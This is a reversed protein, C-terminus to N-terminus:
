YTHEWVDGHHIKILKSSPFITLVKQLVPLKWSTLIVCFYIGDIKFSYELQTWNYSEYM